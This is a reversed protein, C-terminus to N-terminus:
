TVLPATSALRVGEGRHAPPLLGARVVKVDTAVGGDVLHVPVALADLGLREAAAAVPRLERVVGVAVRVGLGAAGADQEAQHLVAVAEEAPRRVGRRPVAHADEVAVAVQHVTPAHLRLIITEM